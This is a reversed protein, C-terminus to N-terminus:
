RQKQDIKNTRKDMDHTPTECIEYSSPKSTGIRCLINQEVTIMDDARPQVEM